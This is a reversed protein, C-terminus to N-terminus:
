FNELLSWKPRLIFYTIVVGAVGLVAFVGVGVYLNVALTVAVSICLGFFAWKKWLFLFGVWVLNLGSFASFFYITWYPVNLFFFRYAVPSIALTLYIIFTLINALFTLILWVTLLAGREKNASMIKRLKLKLM